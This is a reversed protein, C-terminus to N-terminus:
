VSCITPLTLHTYSVPIAEQEVKLFNRGDPGELTSVGSNGLHKFETIEYPDSLLPLLDTYEFEPPHEEAM